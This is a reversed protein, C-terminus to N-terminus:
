HLLGAIWLADQAAASIAVYEAEASSLTVLGQQKSSWAVHSSGLMTTIGTHSRAGQPAYSADSVVSVAPCDTGRLAIGFNATRALYSIVRMTAMWHRVAPRSCHKGLATTAFLIDPRTMRAIYLLSGIVSQYQALDAMEDDSQAATLDHDTTLPTTAGPTFTHAESLKYIADSSDIIIENEVWSWTTGLFKEPKGRYELEVAEKIGNLIAAEAEISSAAILFDDIHLALMVNESYFSAPDSICQRLGAQILLGTIELNWERASQKLGYLAKILRWVKNGTVAPDKIYIDHNVTAQLYAAVVDYQHIIWQKSLALIAITRWTEARATPADTRDYHLGPLQTFGRGTLRAKFKKSGDPNHKIRYVWKTDITQKGTPIEDLEEYVEYQKLQELEKERAQRWLDKDAGKNAEVASITFDAMM